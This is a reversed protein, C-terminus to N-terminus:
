PPREHDVCLAARVVVGVAVDHLQGVPEHLEGIGVDAIADSREVEPRRALERVVCHAVGLRPRNIGRGSGGELGIHQMVLSPRRETREIRDLAGTSEIEEAEVALEHEARECRGLEEAVVGVEHVAARPGM